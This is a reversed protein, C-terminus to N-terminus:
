PVTAGTAYTGADIPVTGSTSGNGFYTVTYQVTLTAANSTVSGCSGTVTCSYSGQDASAVSGITYTATTAGSINSGNKEWQYSLTGAGSGTVTFSASTGITRIISTPDIVTTAANVSLAAANSTVPGCGGTVVCTYSAADGSAVSAISYTPSTAGSISAGGKQWQYTLTGSGAAVVTFSAGGGICVSQASPQTTISTATNITLAAANSTVSGCGGTAVCTYSAADGSAVSAISYTPSTAGSINAGGKQWQYTLAGSGTAAVTFSAPGGLCINQLSPQTTISIATNITLAAANSTVSGCGGTVVCTYNAADGSTVSSITYTAATAGSINAGGKQWQYTLAGSGTAAVTFSM